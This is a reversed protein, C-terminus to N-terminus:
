LYRVHKKEKGQNLGKIVLYIGTFLLIAASILGVATPLFIAAADFFALWKLNSYLLYVLIFFAALTLSAYFYLSQSKM